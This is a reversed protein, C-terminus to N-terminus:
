KDGNRCAKCYDIGARVDQLAQQHERTCRDWTDLLQAALQKIAPDSVSKADSYARQFVDQVKGRADYCREGMDIRKEADSRNTAISADAYNREGSMKTIADDLDKINKDINSKEADPASSRKSSLQDKQSKLQALKVDMATVQERLAKTELKATQCSWSDTKCRDAVESSRSKCDSRYSSNPISDCTCRDKNKVAETYDQLTQANVLPALLGFLVVPIAARALRQTVPHNM